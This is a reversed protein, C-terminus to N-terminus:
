CKECHPCEVTALGTNECVVPATLSAALRELRAEIAGGVEELSRLRQVVERRGVAAGRQEEVGGEQEVVGGGLEVVVGGHEVVVGPEVEVVEVMMEVEGEGGEAGMVGGNCNKSHNKLDTIKSYEAECNECRWKM